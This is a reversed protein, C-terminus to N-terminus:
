KVNFILKLEEPFEQIIQQTLEKSKSYALVLWYNNESFQAYNFKDMYCHINYKWTINNWDAEWGDNLEAIRRNVKVIAKQRAVHSEAEEQTLFYNGMEYCSDDSSHWEEEEKHLKWVLDIFFYTEGYQLRRGINKKEGMLKKAEEETVEVEISKGNLTLTAKM